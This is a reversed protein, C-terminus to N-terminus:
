FYNGRIRGSCSYTKRSQPRYANPSYCKAKHPMPVDTFPEFLEEPKPGAQLFCSMSGTLALEARRAARRIADMAGFSTVLIENRNRNYNCSM